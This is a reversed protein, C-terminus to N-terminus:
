TNASSTTTTRPSTARRRAAQKGKLLARLAAPIRGALSPQLRVAESLDRGAEARAGSQAELLGLNLYATPADPQLSITKQYLFVALSPQTRSYLVAQNFIAPVYKPDLALARRYSVLANSTEDQEQYAVGLDYYAAVNDPDRKIVQQFLQEAAAYNGQQVLDTGAGLTAAISAPPPATGGCAGTAVVTALAAVLLWRRAKGRDDGLSTGV